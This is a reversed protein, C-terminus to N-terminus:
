NLSSPNLPRMEALTRANDARVAEPAVVLGLRALPGDSGWMRSWEDLYPRMGPVARLHAKKVYIYLPRAAPYRFDAVSAYTPAVGDLPLGKLTDANAELYSFGFMGIAQPNQRIKQVTLNDNEGGDVYVGDERIASCLLDHRARDRTRLQRMAADEDCGRTMLLEKLRDRTGSTGAPGYVLIPVPPFAPDVDRWTRAKNPKGYPNAALARYLISPTLALDAGGKAEAFAIGDLGVAIEVVDGVGHARCADFESRRMRRSADTIDPYQPGVGGCFLAMGAGTGNAEIIPSPLSPDNQVLQEAVAKAFPYVTGSGVVRVQNRAPGIGDCAGLALLACLAATARGFHRLRTSFSAPSLLLCSDQCHTARAMPRTLSLM